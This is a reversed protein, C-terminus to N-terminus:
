QMGIWTEAFQMCQLWFAHAPMALCASRTHFCLQKSKTTNGRISVVMKDKGRSNSAICTYNGYDDERLKAISQKSFNKSKGKWLVTTGNPAVKTWMVTPSPNGEAKCNMDVSQGITKYM